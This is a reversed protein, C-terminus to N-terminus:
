GGTSKRRLVYLLGFAIIAAAIGVWLIPNLLSFFSARPTPRLPIDPLNFATLSFRGEPPPSYSIDDITMVTSEPESKGQSVISDILTVKTPVITSDDGRRYETTRTLRLEGGEKSVPIIEYDTLAWDCRMAFVLRGQRIPLKEEALSFRIEVDREDGRAVQGAGTIRFGKMKILDSIRFSEIKGLDVFRGVYYSEKQDLSGNTGARLTDLSYPQTAAERSLRFWLTPTQCM